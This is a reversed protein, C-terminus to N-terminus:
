TQPLILVFNTFRHLFFLLLLTILHICSTTKPFLETIMGLLSRLHHTVLLACPAM